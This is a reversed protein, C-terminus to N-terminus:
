KSIENASEHGDDLVSFSTAYCYKSFKANEVGVDILFQTLWDPIDGTHKVELVQPSKKAAEQTNVLTQVWDENRTVNLRSILSLPQIPKVKIDSDLTLRISADQYAKRSYIVQMQPELNLTAMAENIKIVRKVIAREQIGMNMSLLKDTVILEKGAFLERLSESDIQFRSKKCVADIKAKYELYTDESWIGNPAYQRTRLKFRKNESGLYSRLCTLSKDDFYLSRILTFDTGPIPSANEMYANVLPTLRAAQESNLLFKDELRVFSGEDRQDREKQELKAKTIPKTASDLLRLKLM